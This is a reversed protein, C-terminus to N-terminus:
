GSHSARHEALWQESMSGLPAANVGGPERVRRLIVVAVSAIAVGFIFYM